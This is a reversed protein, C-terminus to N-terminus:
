GLGVLLEDSEDAGCLCEHAEPDEHWRSVCLEEPPAQGVPELEDLLGRQHGDAKVVFRGSGPQGRDCVSDPGVRPEQISLEVALATGEAGPREDPARLLAPELLPAPSLARAARTM